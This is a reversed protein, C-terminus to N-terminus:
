LVGHIHKWLPLIHKNTNNNIRVQTKYRLVRLPYDVDTLYVVLVHVPTCLLERYIVHSDRPAPFQTYVVFVNHPIPSFVDRQIHYQCWTTGVYGVQCPAVPVPFLWVAPFWGTLVYTVSSVRVYPLWIINGWVTNYVFIPFFHSVCDTSYSTIIIFYLWSSNAM